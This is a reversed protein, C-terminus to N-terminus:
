FGLIGEPLPVSLLVKFVIYIGATTLVSTLLDVVLSSFRMLFLLAAIFVPTLIIFGIKKLLLGYLLLILFSIFVKSANSIGINRQTKKNLSSVSIYIGVVALIVAIIRPFVSAGLQAVHPEPFTASMIFVGVLLVISLVGLFLDLWREKFSVM